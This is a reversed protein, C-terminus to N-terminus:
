CKPQSKAFEEKVEAMIRLISQAGRRWSFKGLHEPIATEKQGPVQQWVSMMKAAIDKTDLPNFYECFRGGVEPLSSTGSCAVPVSLALAQLIPLGFGEYLSPYVLARSQRLLGYLDPESLYGTFIIDNKYPSELAFKKISDAGLGAKGVLVLRVKSNSQQRFKAFAKILRVLNKRRELRGYFLFYERPHLSYEKLIKTESKSNPKVFGNPVVTIQSSSARYIKELDKKTNESVAIIKAAQRVALKTSYKLYWRQWASYARPFYEFELGHITVMTLPPHFIPMASAPAWFIDPPQRWLEWALRLQTWLRFFPLVRVEFNSPLINLIAAPLRRDTYLRYRNKKDLLALERILRFTYEEVGTRQSRAARSADIGILM